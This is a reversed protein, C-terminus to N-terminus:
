FIDNAHWTRCHYWLRHDQVRLPRELTKESVGSHWMTFRREDSITGQHCRRQTAVGLSPVLGQVDQWAGQQRSCLESELGEQLYCFTM